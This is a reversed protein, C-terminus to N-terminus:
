HKKKTTKYNYIFLILALVTCVSATTMYLYMFNEEKASALLEVCFGSLAAGIHGIFAYAPYLRKAEETTTTRNAFQWFLMFLMASGWLEAIVYYSVFSWKGYLKLFWKFHDLNIEFFFLHVKSNILRAITAPDPHFFNQNPYIVFGFVLFFILFFAVIYYFIKEFSLRESLYTYLLMFSLAAPTIIYMKIFTVAEPGINAVILSDKLSRLIDYNFLIFFMMMGMSICKKIEDRRIPM